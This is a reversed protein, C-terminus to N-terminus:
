LDAAISQAALNAVAFVAAQPNGSTPTPIISADAVFVNATGNVKFNPACAGSGSDDGVSCTGVPHWITNAYNRLYDPDSFKAGPCIEEGCYKQMADTKAIERAVKLGHEYIQLDTPEILYAPDIAFQPPQGATLPLPKVTGRSQPRTIIPVFIVYRDLDKEGEKLFEPPVFGPIGSSFNIQLDTEPTELIGSRLFLASECLYDTPGPDDTSRFALMVRMHDSLNRGVQHNPVTCTIGAAQLTSPDGIGASQLLAPTQLAGACLVVLRASVSTGDNLVVGTCTDNSMELGTVEKHFLITLNPPVKGGLLARSPSSRTNDPNLIFQMLDCVGEQHHGNFDGRKYGLQLCGDIFATSSPSPTPTRRISIPGNLGRVDTDFGPGHCCELECLSRLLSSPSWNPNGGSLKHWEEFNAQHGRVYMMANIAAGGGLVKGQNITLVRDNLGSQPTSKLQWDADTFWSKLISPIAPDVFADDTGEGGAEILVVSADTIEALRAAAISGAAGGGVVAIDWSRDM